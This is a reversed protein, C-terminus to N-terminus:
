DLMEGAPCALLCNEGPLVDSRGRHHLEIITYAQHRFLLKHLPAFLLPSGHYIIYYNKERIAEL